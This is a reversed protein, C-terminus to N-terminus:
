LVRGIVFSQLACDVEFTRYRMKSIELNIYSSTGLGITRRSDYIWGIPRLFWEISGYIVGNLGRLVLDPICFTPGVKNFGLSYFIQHMGVSNLSKIKPEGRCDQRNAPFIHSPSGDEETASM